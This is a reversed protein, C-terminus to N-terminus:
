RVRIKIGPHKSQVVAVQKHFAEVLYQGLIARRHGNTHMMAQSDVGITLSRVQRKGKVM